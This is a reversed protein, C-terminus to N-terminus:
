IAERLVAALAPSLTEALVEAIGEETFNYLVGDNGGIRFGKTVKQSPIIEVGKKFRKALKAKLGAEL